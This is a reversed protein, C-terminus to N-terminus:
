GVQKDVCYVLENEFTLETAPWGKGAILESFFRRYRVVLSRGGHLSKTPFSVVLWRVRLAELLALGRGGYNREFRPLEKLFLAVDGRERPLELAVDQVKALPALGQLAFYTNIFGVRREHLDYAHYAVGCPLGMWPFTLPNLACAVDLITAPLGTVDFVAGYFRDLIALRERTSAHARLVHACADREAAEDGARFAERLAVEAADYNPDGVYPAVIEHLRRRVAKEVQKRTGHQRSEVEVLGRITGEYTERYKKSHKISAVIAEIENQEIKM